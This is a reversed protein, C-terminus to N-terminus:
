LQKTCVKKHKKSYMPVTSMLNGSYNLKVALYQLSVDSAYDKHGIHCTTVLLYSTGVVQSDLYQFFGVDDIEVHEMLIPFEAHLIKKEELLRHLRQVFLNLNVNLFGFNAEFDVEDNVQIHSNNLKDRDNSCSEDTLGPSVYDVMGQDTLYIDLTLYFSDSNKVPIEGEDYNVKLNCRAITKIVVMKKGTELNVTHDVRGIMLDDPKFIYSEDSVKGEGLLKLTYVALNQANPLSNEFESKAYVFSLQITSIIFVICLKKISQSM